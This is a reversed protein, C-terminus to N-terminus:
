AGPMLQYLAEIEVALERRCVTGHLVQTPALASLQAALSTHAAADEARSWYLKFNRPMLRSADVGARQAAATVVADLNLRAEAFQAAVDDVHCSEFGVISATGSVFLWGSDGARVLSARAFSPPKEGYDRPYRWASTQRPNEIACAATRGALAFVQLGAACGIATAAPLAADLQGSATWARHRGLTFQRYREADGEGEVIGGLYNWLRWWHPAGCALRAAELQRYAAETAAAPDRCWTADAVVLHLFLSEGDEVWRVGDLTGSRLPQPSRWLDLAPGALLPLPIDGEAGHRLAALLPTSPAAAACDFTPLRPDTM